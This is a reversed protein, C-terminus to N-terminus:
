VTLKRVFIIMKTTVQIWLNSNNKICRSSSTQINSNKSFKNKFSYSSSPHLKPNLLFLEKSSHHPNFRRFSIHSYRWYKKSILNNHNKERHVQAFSPLKFKCIKGKFIFTIKLINLSVSQLVELLRRAVSEEPFNQNRKRRLEWFVAGKLSAEKMSITNLQLKRKNQYWRLFREKM